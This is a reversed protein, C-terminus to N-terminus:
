EGIKDRITNIINSGNKSVQDKASNIAGDVGKKVGKSIDDKIGDVDVHDKIIQGAIQGGKDASDIFKDAGTKVNEKGAMACLIAIIVFLWLLKKM